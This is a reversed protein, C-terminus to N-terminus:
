FLDEEEPEQAAFEGGLERLRDGYQAFWEESDSSAIGMAKSADVIAAQLLETALSARNEGLVEAMVDLNVVFPTSLRTNVQLKHPRFGRVKGSMMLSTIKSDM